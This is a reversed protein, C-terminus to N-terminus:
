KTAGGEGNNNVLDKGIDGCGRVGLIGKTNPYAQLRVPLRYMCCDHVGHETIGPRYDHVDLTIMCFTNQLWRMVYTLM